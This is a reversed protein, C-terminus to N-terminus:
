KYLKIGIQGYSCFTPDKVFAQMHVYAVVIALVIGIITYALWNNYFSQPEPVNPFIITAQLSHDPFFPM